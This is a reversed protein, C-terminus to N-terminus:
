WSSEKCLEAIILSDLAAKFEFRREMMVMPADCASSCAVMDERGVLLRKLVAGLEILGRWSTPSGHRGM